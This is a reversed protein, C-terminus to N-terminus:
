QRLPIHALTEASPPFSNHCPSDRCSPKGLLLSFNHPESTPGELVIATQVSGRVGFYERDWQPTIMGLERDKDLEFYYPHSRIHAKRAIKFVSKFGIGKEGTYGHGVPKTSKGVRCLSVINDETYGKENSGIRVANPYVAITLSPESNEHYQNDDANQIIEMLFRANCTFLDESIIQLSRAAISKFEEYGQILQLIRNDGRDAAEQAERRFAETYSGRSQAINQITREAEHLTPVLRGSDTAM